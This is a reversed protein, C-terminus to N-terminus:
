VIAIGFLFLTTVIVNGLVQLTAIAYFKEFNKTYGICEYTGNNDLKLSPIQLKSGVGYLMSKGNFHWYANGHTYCIFEVPEGM